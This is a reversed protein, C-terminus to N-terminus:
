SKDVHVLLSWSIAFKSKARVMAPDFRGTVNTLLGKKLLKM